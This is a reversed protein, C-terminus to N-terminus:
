QSVKVGAPRRSKMGHVRVGGSVDGHDMRSGDNMGVGRNARVYANSCEGDNIGVYADTVVAGDVRM